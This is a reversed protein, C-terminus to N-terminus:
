AHPTLESVYEGELGLKVLYNQVQKNLKKFANFRVFIKYDILHEENTINSKLKKPPRCDPYLRGFGELYIDEGLSLADVIEEFSLLLVKHVEEQSLSNLVEAKELRTKVRKALKQYTVSM